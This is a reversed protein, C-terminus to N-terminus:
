DLNPVGGFKGLKYYNYYSLEKRFDPFDAISILDTAGDKGKETFWVADKRLIDKENLISMNHTTLLLQASNSNKLFEKIFHIVLLPHLSSGIEDILLAANNEITYFFPASLGYYRMTGKSQREEPLNHYGAKGKAVIHHEFITNNIHIVKEKKIKEIESQPIPAMDIVKLVEEPIKRVNEEFLIDSINFDAKKIFKLAQKKIEPDNKIHEDSYDTLSTLPTVPEMFQNKFWSYANAIEPISINIQSIAAFVSSNKLTKLSVEEKATKSIKLKAGFEIISTNSKIDLFRDFLIAPQTGPYFTLREKHIFSKDIELVYVHKVGNVWFVLEFHGPKDRTTDFHFPHFDIEEEKNEVINFIIDRIFDFANILNSKGSANAGYVMALKLLRVGPAPEYIYYDDLTNDSTAEFSFIVEEKFSLFNTIRLEQIM